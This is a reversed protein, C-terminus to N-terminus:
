AKIEASNGQHYPSKAKCKSRKFGRPKAMLVRV